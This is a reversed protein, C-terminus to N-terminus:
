EREGLGLHAALVPDLREGKGDRGGRALYARAFSARPAVVGRVGATIREEVSKQDMGGGGSQTSGWLPSEPEIRMGGFYCAVRRCWAGGVRMGRFGFCEESGNGLWGCAKGVKKAGCVAEAEGTKAVGSAVRSM